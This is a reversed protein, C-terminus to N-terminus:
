TNGASRTAGGVLREIADVTRASASGDGYPSPEDALRRHVAELDDIWAGVVSSIQPGPDVREAFTGIVEPRETSRRVVLVPRKVVSAEEQVGGSDSVLVAAEVALGLFDVYGLPDVVRLSALLHRAEADGAARRATRPHLPLLVPLPLAALEALITRLTGPHDVNEPRHFTSLVFRGSELDHGKLLAARDEVSPLLSLVAEVVTNGTVVIRDDDVGEALLNSRNVETPACLLDALHDAVIRNHEEPMRRDFSRLGAEVHILPVERANAAIAGAAVSNTDGQVVVAATETAGLWDDLAIVSRGIQEGRTGGGVGLHAAPEPLDFAEFFAASLGSDYHQGTHVITAAPGLLRIVHGLKIIEPRTGLVVAISRPRLTGHPDLTM